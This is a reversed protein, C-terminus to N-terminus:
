MQSGSLTNDKLCLRAIFRLMFESIDLGTAKKIWLHKNGNQAVLSDFIIGKTMSLKILMTKRRYALLTILVAIRM